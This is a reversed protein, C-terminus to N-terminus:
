AERVYCLPPLSRSEVVGCRATLALAVAASPRAVSRLRAFTM